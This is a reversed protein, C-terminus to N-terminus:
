RVLGEAVLAEVVKPRAAIRAHYEVIAPTGSIDMNVFRTWNVVTFLYADAATFRDGMLYPKGRM